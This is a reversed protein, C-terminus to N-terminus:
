LINTALIWMLFFSSTNSEGQTGWGQISGTVCFILNWVTRFLVKRGLGGGGLRECNSSELSCFYCFSAKQREGWQKKLQLNVIDVNFLLNYERSGPFSRSDSSRLYLANVM